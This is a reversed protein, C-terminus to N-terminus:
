KIFNLKDNKIENLIKERNYFQQRNVIRAIANDIQFQPIRRYVPAKAVRVGKLRFPRIGAKKSDNDKEECAFKYKNFATFSISLGFIFVYIAPENEAFLLM